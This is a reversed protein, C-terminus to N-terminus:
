KAILSRPSLPARTRLSAIGHTVERRSIERFVRRDCASQTRYGSGSELSLECFAKISLQSRSAEM